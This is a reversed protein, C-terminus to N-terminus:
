SRGKAEAMALKCFEIDAFTMNLSDFKCRTLAEYLKPAAAILHANAYKESESVGPIGIDYRAVTPTNNSKNKAVSKVHGITGNFDVVWPGPTFKTDTM